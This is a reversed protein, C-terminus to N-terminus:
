LTDASSFRIFKRNLPLYIYTDFELVTDPKIDILPVDSYESGGEPIIGRLIGMDMPLLFADSFGNKSFAKQDFGDRETSVFYMPPDAWVSRIAQALDVIDASERIKGCFILDPPVDTKRKLLQELNFESQKFFVSPLAQKLLRMSADDIGIAIAWLQPM